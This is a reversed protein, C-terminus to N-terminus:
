TRSDGDSLTPSLRTPPLSPRKEQAAPYTAMLFYPMSLLIFVSM